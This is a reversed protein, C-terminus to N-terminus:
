GHVLDSNRGCHRFSVVQQSFSHYNYGSSHFVDNIVQQDGWHCAQMSELKSTLAGYVQTSPRFLMAGSCLRNDMTANECNNWRDAQGILSWRDVTGDFIYDINTKVEMDSDLWMLKDYDTLSFIRLKQFSNRWRAGGTDCRVPIADENRFPLIVVNPKNGFAVMTQPSNTVILLSYKSKVQQLNAVLRELQKSYSLPGLGVNTKNYQVLSEADKKTTGAISPDYWMTVYAYNGLAASSSVKNRRGSEVGVNPEARGLKTRVSLLLEGNTDVATTIVAYCLALLLRARATHM